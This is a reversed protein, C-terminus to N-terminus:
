LNNGDLIDYSGGFLFGEIIHVNNIFQHVSIKVMYNMRVLRKAFFM